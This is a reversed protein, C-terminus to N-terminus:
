ASYDGRLHMENGGDGGDIKDGADFAAGMYFSDFGGLGKAVDEGGQSLDFGDDVGTGTFHDDGSTGMFTDRTIPGHQAFPGMPAFASSVHLPSSSAPREITPLAFRSTGFMGPTERSSGM